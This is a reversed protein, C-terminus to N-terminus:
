GCAASSTANTLDSAAGAALQSVLQAPEAISQLLQLALLQYPVASLDRKFQETGSFVTWQNCQIAASKNHVICDQMEM